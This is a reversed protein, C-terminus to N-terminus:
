VGGIEKVAQNVVDKIGTAIEIDLKLCDLLEEALSLVDRSFEIKRSSYDNFEQSVILKGKAGRMVYKGQIKVSGDNWTLIVSELAVDNIVLAM